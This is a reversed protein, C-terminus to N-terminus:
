KEKVFYDKWDNLGIWTNNKVVNSVTYYNCNYAISLWRITIGSDHLFRITIADGESLKNNSTHRMNETHTAWRCNCPEYNGETNIRDIESENTPQPGMDALFNAFSEKWRDCVNIGKAGYYKYADCEPFYCRRIMSRWSRYVRTKAHGHKLWQSRRYDSRFCGCSKTTGHRIPAIQRIKKNGCDCLCEYHAHGRKGTHSFKGVTFRGYRTGEPIIKLRTSSMDVEFFAEPRIPLSVFHSLVPSAGTRRFGSQTKTELEHIASLVM